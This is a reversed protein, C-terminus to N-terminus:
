CDLEMKWNNITAAHGANVAAVVHVHVEGLHVYRRQVERRVSCESSNMKGGSALNMVGQDTSREQLLEGHHVLAARSCDRDRGDLSLVMQLRALVADFVAM